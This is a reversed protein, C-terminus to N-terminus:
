FGVAGGTVGTPPSYSAVAQFVCVGVCAGCMGLRIPHPSLSLELRSTVSGPEFVRASLCFVRPMSGALSHQM